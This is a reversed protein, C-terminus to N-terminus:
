PILLPPHGYKARIWDMTRHIKPMRILRLELARKGPFDLLAVGLLMTLLGQGPMFLMAVGAFFIVVGLLNKGILGLARAVPHLDAMASKRGPMFYDPAMKVVLVPIIILTAVFTALSIGGLWWLLGDHERVWDLIM